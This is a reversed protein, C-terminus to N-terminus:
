VKVISLQAFGNRQATAINDDHWSRVTLTDGSKAAVVYNLSWSFLTRASVPPGMKATYISNGNKMVNIFIQDAGTSNLLVGTTLQVAYNLQFYGSLDSPVQVRRLSSDSLAGWTSTSLPGWEQEISTFVGRDKVSIDGLVVAPTQDVGLCVGGSNIRQVSQGVHYLDNTDHAYFLRGDDDKTGPASLRSAVDHFVRASGPKHIGASTASDSFFHETNLTSQISRWHQRLLDDGESILSVGSPMSANWDGTINAL